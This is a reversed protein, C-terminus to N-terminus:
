PIITVTLDQPPLLGAIDATAATWSLLGDRKAFVEVKTVVLADVFMRAGFLNRTFFSPGGMADLTYSTGSTEAEFIVGIGDSGRILYGTGVEPGINGVLHGQQPEVTQQTRDRYAWTLAMTTGGFFPEDGPLVGDVRFNGPPYPRAARGAFTITDEPAMAYPLVEDPTRSLLRIGVAQGEGYVTEGGAVFDGQVMVAAGRAHATPVTDLCGRAVTMKHGTEFMSRGFIPAGFMPLAERTLGTLVAHEAGISILQNPALSLDDRLETVWIDAEDAKRTVARHLAGGPAFDMEQVNVPDLGTIIEIVSANICSDTPRVGTAQWFGATPDDATLTEAQAEGLLRVLSWYPAEQVLRLDVPDAREVAGGIVPPTRTFISTQAVSYIDETFTVRFANNVGDGTTVPPMIRAVTRPIRNAPADIIVVQGPTLLGVSRRLVLSGSALPASASWLEREGIRAAMSHNRCMDFTLESPISRGALQALAPDHVTIAAADMTYPDRYRLIITNVANVINRRSFREVQVIDDDDIVLLDDEDYNKRIPTVEVLGTLPNLGWFANVHDCITQIYNGYQAGQGRDSRYEYSIGFGESHFLDAAARLKADDIEREPRAMGFGQARCVLAERIAHAPNLDDGVDISLAALLSDRLAEPDDAEIVPVGDDSTNDILETASTDALEINFAFRELSSIGDLLTKAATDSGSEPVGDTVFLLVRRKTTDRENPRGFGVADGTSGGGIGPFAGNDEATFWDPASEVASLFNTGYTSALVGTVFARLADFDAAVCEKREIAAIAAGAFSVIRIDHLSGVPRSAELANLLDLIAARQTVIKSGAMSLSGDLAIYIWMPRTFEITHNKIRAKEPYWQPRYDPQQLIRELTVDPSRLSPSNGLYPNRMVLTTMRRYASGVAGWASQIYDNRPQTPTGNDLDMFGSFGGEKKEGGYAEPKHIGLRGPAQSGRWLEVEQTGFRIMRDVPGLCLGLVYPLYYKFGITPKKGVSGM